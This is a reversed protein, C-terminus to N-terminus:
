NAVVRVRLHRRSTSAPVTARWTQLPGASGTLTESVGSSSWTTLNDSAEVIWTLDCGSYRTYTLQLQGGTLTATPMGALTGSAPNMGLGFELLNFLGDKDPDVLPGAVAPNGTGLTRLAWADYSETATVTLEDFVTVTGTATLRLVYTGLASFTASTFESNPASFNVTGPGSVRSWQLTVGGPNQSGFTVSGELSLPSPLCVSVDEGAIVGFVGSFGPNPQTARWSAKDGWTSRAAAANVIELAAGGGDTIPYWDDSYDFDLIGLQYGAIEMRLREGGNDLRGTYTGGYPAGPYVANFSTQTNGTICIFAGPALTTGPAFQFTIGNVFAVSSIDLTQTASLNRLEVYEPASSGGPPNFMLETIRLNDLLLQQPALSTGNSYGPTPLTFLTIVSSGDTARGQSVDEVQPASMVHDIVETDNLLTLGERLKNIAFSLHNAGQDTDSDAIFRAFGGAGIYSHPAIVHQAPFNIADDTLVLGSLSAPLAFSNYLELFDNSVIIDNSGLWENIRLGSTSGLQAATNETGPTVQGLTWHRDNGLRSLSKDAVQFGFEVSDVLSAGFVSGSYLYVQDGDANLNFGLSDNNLLLYGGAPISSGAPFVYKPSQSVTIPDDSLGWGDINVPSGSLNRLEIFDPRTTGVPWANVNNALVESIIVPQAEASVTWTLSQTAATESQWVGASNKGIVRISHTGTTLGTLTVPTAVPTEAGFPGGDLSYRFHTIGPGGITLVASQSPQHAVPEGSISAGAAVIGGRDLLNPGTGAAPSGSQLAFMTQINAATIGSTGVLLPDGTLNGSGTVPAAIASPLMNRNATIPGTASAANEFVLPCDFVINGDLSMGLGATIGASAPEHFKFAGASSGTASGTNSIGSITNNTVICHSGGTVTVAHDCNSFLNRVVTVESANTADRAAVIAASTDGGNVAQHVALFSNGEVHADAGRLDLADDSANQLVNDLVQLIAGPRQGGIFNLLDFAGTTGGFINGRFIAYGAAPVGSGQVATVGTTAPFNSFQFTFSSNSSGFYQTSVNAFDVHDFYGTSHTLSIAPSTNSGDITVYALRSEVSSGSLNVRGWKTAQGPERMLRIPATAAGEALIRGTGSVNLSVGAALYVTAGPEITLTENDITLSATVRYPGGAATWTTNGAISAVSQVSGDDYWLAVSQTALVTDNPGLASLTLQNLGPRLTLAAGASWPAPGNGGEGGGISQYNNPMVDVTGIRVKQVRSSDVTGSLGTSNAVTTQPYGNVTPLSISITLAAPPVGSGSYGLVTQLIHNRRATNFSKIADRKSVPVGYAATPGTWDGLVSDVMANFSSPLFVTNLLDVLQAKFRQNTIPNSFLPQLAPLTEGSSFPGNVQYITATPSTPDIGSTNGGDGWVTDFDHALPIFRPDVIGRYLNYDDNAGNSLNTENHNVITQFAQWRLWYDVNMVAEMQAVTPNAGAFTKMLNHLDTYDNLDENTQKVWGDNRYGSASPPGGPSQERVTWDQHPREKKYLNGDDDNPRLENLYEGGTPLLHIYYGGSHSSNDLARNTANLRVQVPWSREHILGACEMMKSALDGLHPHWINLNAETEGGWDDDKPINLRWNNISNGRSGAGRVRLGCRYRVDTDAGQKAVFTVNLQADSQRNWGNLFDAVDAAPGILRYIPYHNTWAEEDVQYFANCEQIWNTFAADLGAMPWTRSNNGADTASVYFEVLTGNAQPPISAGYEGDGASGDGHAGDDFMPAQTFAGPSAVNARWYLFVTPPALSEDQVNVTVTVSDTSRPIQPRHDLDSILPAINSATRGNAAGPTPPADGGATGSWFWNQGNDNNLTSNILELSSGGADARTYWEWGTEGGISAQYRIAWDGEDAYTVEDVIEGAATQLRITEGSNSLGGTWPGRLLGVGAFTATFQVPDAAVVLWGGGPIITGVPLTYDVGATFQWGSVDLAGVNGNHVEIFEDGAAIAQNGTVLPHYHIESIVVKALDIGVGINVTTVASTLVGDSARYTFSDLGSYGANPVYFLSGDPAIDLTGHAPGSSLIATLSQQDVDSDNSLLGTAAPVSLATDLPTAYSDAVAVPADNVPAVNITVTAATLSDRAGDFAKYAFSDPGHYNQAPTYNFAGNASLALTGHSVSTTLQATLPDNEPDTDNALIGPAAISLPTDETAAYTNASAVPRANIRITVTASNSNVTGDNARYTFSANGTFGAPPAYNFSGNANLTLTGQAPATVLQATLAFGPDPDTDNGLVGPSPVVLTVGPDTSYTENVAVPPDNVNAINITVTAPASPGGLDNATYTFTVPGTVNLPPTYSFSGNPNLTLSGSAPPTALVATFSDGDADFDNALVGSAANVNLTTEETAAYTNPAVAPRVNPGIVVTINATAIASTLTGDTCRYTFSDPGVYGIAPTYTFTGDPNVSVTGHSPNTNVSVTLTTGPDADTDNALLGAPVTRTARLRLNFSLDSSSGSNQHVSAAITNDGEELTSLALSQTVAANNGGTGGIYQDFSPPVGSTGGVSQTRFVEDGGLYVVAGDDYVLSLDLASIEWVRSVNFERRFYTTAYRGTDPNVYGPTANDEVVTVEDSNGYGLEAGGSDWTSDDFATGFWATGQDSGDDLYKWVSSVVSSGYPILDDQTSSPVLATVVLPTNIATTYTDNNAVPTEGVDVVTINVNVDASNATGDTTRYVFSAVGSFGTAPTFLFAGNPQLTLVGQSVLPATVLVASLQAPSNDVDTDNVLLGENAKADLTVQENTSYTDAVAVPPDNVPNVTLTVTAVNSPASAADMARYTFTDTGHFNANPQYTFNGDSALNLAGSATGAVLQATVAGGTDNALVSGGGGVLSMELNDFLVRINEGTQSPYTGVGELSITHTGAALPIDHVFPSAPWGPDNTTTNSTEVANPGVLHVLSSNAAAGYYTNNVRLRAQGFESTEMGGLMRVRAQVSVRVTAPSTLTFNRQWGGSVGAGSEGGASNRTLAIDLAHDPNGQTTSLTGSAASARNTVTAQGPYVTTNDTYNFGGNAPPVPIFRADIGIDSSVYTAGGANHLEVAFINIGTTLLGAPITIADTTYTGEDQINANSSTNTTLAGAPVYNTAADFRVRQVETGNVYFIAADDVIHQVQWSTVAATGADMTFTKRFLYTTINYPAGGVSYGTLVEPAGPFGGIGGGQLPMPASVWPGVSSTSTDFNLAKWNRSAADVPYTDPTQGNQNNRIKDLYSWNGGALVNVAPEFNASYIQSGAGTALIGDENLSVADNVAVPAASVHPIAFLCAIVALGRAHTPRTMSNTQDFPFV